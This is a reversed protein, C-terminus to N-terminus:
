RRQAGPPRPACPDSCGPVTLTKEGTPGRGRRAPRLGACGAAELAAIQGDLTQGETSVRAYGIRAGSAGAPFTALEDGVAVWETSSTM